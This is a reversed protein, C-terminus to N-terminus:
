SSFRYRQTGDWVVQEAIEKEVLKDWVDRQLLSPCSSSTIPSEYLALSIANMLHLRRTGLGHGRVVESTFTLGVVPLVFESGQELIIRGEGVYRGSRNRDQVFVVDFDSQRAVYTRGGDQHIIGLALDCAEKYILSKRVLGPLDEYEIPRIDGSPFYLSMIDMSDAERLLAM